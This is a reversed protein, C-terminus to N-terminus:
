ARRRSQRRTQPGSWNITWCWVWTNTLTWLALTQGVSASQFPLPKNRRFDVVMEKTKAVNLQLHNEGCWKVFNGVLDRYEDERAGEVRGVIAMDVSIRYIFHSVATYTTFLFPSLVTGQPTGINSILRDSVCSRLTM